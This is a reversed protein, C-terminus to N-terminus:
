VLRVKSGGEDEEDSSSLRSGIPTGLADVVRALLAGPEINGAPGFTANRDIKSLDGESMVRALQPTMVNESYARRRNLRHKNFAEEIDEEDDSSSVIERKRLVPWETLNPASQSRNKSDLLRNDILEDKYVPQFM